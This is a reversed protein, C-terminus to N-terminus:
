GVIRGSCDPSPLRIRRAALTQARKINNVANGTSYCSTFRNTSASALSKPHWRRPNTRPSHRVTERRSKAKIEHSKRHQPIGLHIPLRTTSALDLRHERRVWTPSMGCEHRTRGNSRKLRVQAAKSRMCAATPKRSCVAALGRAHGRAFAQEERGAGRRVYGTTV